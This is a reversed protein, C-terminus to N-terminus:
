RAAGKAEKIKVLFPVLLDPNFNDYNHIVMPDSGLPDNGILLQKEETIPTTSYIGSVLLPNPKPLTTFRRIQRLINILWRMTTKGFYLLVADSAKLLNKCQQPSSISDHSLSVELLEQIVLYNYLPKICEKDNEHYFLCVNVPEDVPEDNLKAETELKKLVESKFSEFKNDLWDHSNNQVIEIFRVQPDSEPVLDKPLWIMQDRNLEAALDYQIHPISRDESDPRSGYKKGLLHVSLKAQQLYDKVTSILEGTDQPLPHDPLVRYNFQQLETKIDDREKILDPSTEALYVTVEPISIVEISDATSRPQTRQLHKVLEKVNQALKEIRHTYESIDEKNIHPKFQKYLGSSENLQFFRSELLNLIEEPEEEVPWIVAKLIQDRRGLKLFEELEWRCWDSTVFNPSFVCVLIASQTLAKSLQEDFGGFQRIRPDRFIKVREGQSNKGLMGQVSSHLVDEFYDVWGQSENPLLVNDDHAYSIFIDNEYGALWGM